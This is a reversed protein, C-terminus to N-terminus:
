AACRRFAHTGWAPWEFRCPRARAFPRLEHGARRSPLGRPRQEKPEVEMTQRLASRTDPALGLMSTPFLSAALDEPILDRLIGGRDPREDRVSGNPRGAGGCARRRQTM